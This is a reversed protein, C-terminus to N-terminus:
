PRGPVTNKENKGGKNAKERSKKDLWEFFKPPNLKMFFYLNAAEKGIKSACEEDCVNDIALLTVFFDDKQVDSYFKLRSYLMEFIGLMLFGVNAYILSLSFEDAFILKMILDGANVVIMFFGVYFLIKMM